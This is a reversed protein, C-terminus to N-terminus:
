FAEQIIVYIIDPITVVDIAGHNFSASELIIEGGTTNFLSLIDNNSKFYQESLITGQDNIIYMRITIKEAATTMGPDSYLQLEGATSLETTSGVLNMNDSDAYRQVGNFFYYDDFEDTAPNYMGRWLLTDGTGGGKKTGFTMDRKTLYTNDDLFFEGWKRLDDPLENNYFMRLEFYHIGDVRKTLNLIQFNDAGSKRFIQEVRVTNGHIDKVTRGTSLDENKLRNAFQKNKWLNNKEDDIESKLQGKPDGQMGKIFIPIGQMMDNRDQDNMERVDTFKGDAGLTAVFGGKLPIETKLLKSLFSLEGEGLYIKTVDGQKLVFITGRVGVVATPTEISVKDDKGLKKIQAWIKGFNLGFVSQKKGAEDTAKKFVFESNKAIRIRSEDTLVVQASGKEGTIIKDGVYVMSNLTAPISKGSARVIKVDGFLFNIKGTTSTRAQAQAMFAFALTYIILLSIIKKM